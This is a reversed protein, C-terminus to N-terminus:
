HNFHFFRCCNVHWSPSFSFFYMPSLLTAMKDCIHSVDRPPPRWNGWWYEPPAWSPPPPPVGTFDHVGEHINLGNTEEKNSLSMACHNSPLAKDIDSGATRNRITSPAPNESFYWTEEREINPSQKSTTDKPLASFGGISWTVWTFILVQYSLSPLTYTLDMAGFHSCSQISETSKLHYVLSCTWHGPPLIYFDPSISSILSYVQVKVQVKVDKQLCDNWQIFRYLFM